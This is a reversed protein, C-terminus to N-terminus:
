KQSAIQKSTILLNSKKRFFNSAPTIFGQRRREREKKERSSLGCHGAVGTESPSPLLSLSPFLILASSVSLLIRNCPNSALLHAQSQQGSPLDLSRFQFKFLRSIMLFIGNGLGSIPSNKQEMRKDNEVEKSEQQEEEVEEKSLDEEEKQQKKKEKKRRIM